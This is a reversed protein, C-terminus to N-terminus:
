TLCAESLCAFIQLELSMALVPAFKDEMVNKEQARSLERCM